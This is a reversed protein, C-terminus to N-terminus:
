LIAVSDPPAYYDFAPSAAQGRTGCEDGAPPRQKTGCEPCVGSTNGTLDYGCNPCDRDSPDYIRRPRRKQLRALLTVLVLYALPIAALILCFSGSTVMQALIPSASM